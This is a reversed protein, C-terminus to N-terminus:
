STYIVQKEKMKGSTATKCLTYFDQFKKMRAINIKIVFQVEYKDSENTLFFLNHVYVCRIMVVCIICKDEKKRLKQLQEIYIFFFQESVVFYSVIYYVNM